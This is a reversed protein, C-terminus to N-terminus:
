IAKVTATSLHNNTSCLDTTPLSLQVTMRALVGEMTEHKVWLYYGRAIYGRDVLESLRVDTPRRLRPQRQVSAGETAENGEEEDDTQSADEITDMADHEANGEEEGDARDEAGAERDPDKSSQFFTLTGSDPLHQTIISNGTGSPAQEQIATASRAALSFTAADAKWELTPPSNCQFQKGAQGTRRKSEYDLIRSLGNFFQRRQDANFARYEPAILVAFDRMSDALEHAM